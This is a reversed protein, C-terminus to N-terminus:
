KETLVKVDSVILPVKNKTENDKFIYKRGNELIKILFHM